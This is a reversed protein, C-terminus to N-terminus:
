NEEETEHVTHMAFCVMEWYNMRGSQEAARMALYLDRIVEADKGNQGDLVAKTVM